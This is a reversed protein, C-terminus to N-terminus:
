IFTVTGLVAIQNPSIVVNSSPSVLTASEIKNYAIGSISEELNISSYEVASYIAAEVAEKLLDRNPTKISALLAEIESVIAAKMSPTNPVVNQITINVVVPTVPEIYISEIPTNPPAITFVTERMDNLETPTFSGSGARLVYVTVDGVNPTTRAVIAQEVNPARLVLDAITDPDFLATNAQWAQIVRRRYLDDTEEESGGVLGGGLVGVGVFGKSDVNTLEDVLEVPSYAPQNTIEGVDTSIVPISAGVYTVTSASTMTSLNSATVSFSISTPSLVAIKKVGNVATISSGSVTVTMGTALNATSVGTLTAISDQIAVSTFPTTITSLAQSVINKYEVGNVTFFTNAPVTAGSVGTVILFGASSSASKRPTSKLTGWFDLQEGTCTIPTKQDYVSEILKDLQLLEPALSALIQTVAQPKGVDITSVTAAMIGLLSSGLQQITRNIEFAM